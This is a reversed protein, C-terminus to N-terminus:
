PDARWTFADTSTVAVLAESLQGGNASLADSLSQVACSDADTNPRSFTFRFVQTALCATVEPREALQAALDVPSSFTLPQKLGMMVGATDFSRGLEDKERYTGTADFHELALGPADLVQHCGACGPRSEIGQAVERATPNAPLPVSAFEALANAPPDGLPTCLVRKQLSRGRFVFSSQTPHANSALLLPQTLLGATRSADLSVKSWTGAAPVPVGLVPALQADVYADTTTLLSKMTGGGRVQGVVFRDFSENLSAAYAATFYPFRTADKDSSLLRKTQTWERFYRTIVGDATPSAFLRRAQAALVAPDTLRDAAALDLLEDDPVSDQLLMSLRTALEDSSLARGGGAADEVVYLFQPAQLVTATLVAVGDSFSGGSTLTADFTRQLAAREDPTLRRRYARRVVTDLWTDLCPQAPSADSSCPLLTPLATAVDVAVTEAARQLQLTAQEGVQNIAEETSYGTVSVGFGPPYATSAAVRGAFVTAIAHQYQPTTLRHLVTTAPHRGSACVNQTTQASTPGIVGTCATLLPALLVGKRILM